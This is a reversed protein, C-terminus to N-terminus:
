EAITAPPMTRASSKWIKTFMPMVIPIAGIVPMGQREHADAARRHDRVEGRHAHQERDVRAAAPRAGRAPASPAAPGGPRAARARSPPRPESSRALREDDAPRALERVTSRCRARGRRPAPRRAAPSSGSPARRAVDVHERPSGVRPPRAASLRARRARTGITARRRPRATRSTVIGYTSAVSTTRTPAPSPKGSSAIARVIAARSPSSAAGSAARTGSSRRATTRVARRTRRACSRCRRRRPRRGPRRGAPARASRAAARAAARAPTRARPRGARAAARARRGREADAEPQARDGALQEVRERAPHATFPATAYAPM